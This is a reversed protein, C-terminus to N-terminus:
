AVRVWPGQRLINEVIAVRRWEDLLTDLLCLRWGLAKQLAKLRAIALRRFRYVLLARHFSALTNPM